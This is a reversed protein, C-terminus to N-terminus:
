NKNFRLFKVLRFIANSSEVAVVSIAFRGTKKLETLLDTAKDNLATLTSPLTAPNEDVQESKEDEAGLDRRIKKVVKELKELKKTDETSLKKNEEFSKVLEESLKVAEESRNLLEQFDEEEQKIRRKALNEKLGEPVDFKPQNARSEQAAALGSAVTFIMAMLILKLIM